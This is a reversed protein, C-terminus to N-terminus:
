PFVSGKKKKVIVVTNEKKWIVKYVYYQDKITEFITKKKLFDSVNKATPHYNLKGKGRSDMKALALSTLKCIRPLFALSM